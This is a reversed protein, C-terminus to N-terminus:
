RNKRVKADPQILHARWSPPRSRFATWMSRFRVWSLIQRYGFLELIGGALLRRPNHEKLPYSVWMALVSNAVGILFSVLLIMGASSFPISASALALLVLFFALWEMPASMVELFWIFPTSTTLFKPSSTMCWLLGRQWRARQEILVKWTQPAHTFCVTKEIFLIRYDPIHTKGFAHLKLTFELDETLSGVPIGGVQVAPNTRYLGAAGSILPVANQSNWCLRGVFFARQYESVQLRTLLNEQANALGVVGGVAIVHGRVVDLGAVLHTLGQPSWQTDADSIAFFESEVFQLACNISDAKGSNQKDLVILRPDMASRFMSRPLLPSIRTRASFTENRLQFAQSLLHLTGDKSGDNIIMIKLNSYDLRLLARVSSVIVSEENCAPVLVTIEPQPPLKQPTHTKLREVENRSMLALIWTALTSVGFYGTLGLLLVEVATVASM